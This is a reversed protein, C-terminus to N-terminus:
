RVTVVGRGGDVTVVQGDVLRTTAASVNVVAPLGYERAIVAGHSLMGGMELVLGGALEFLPTWGPDTARAVLIEGRRLRGAEDLTRLVRVPGTVTGASIGTGVLRKRDDEEPVAEDGLLFPPPEDGARRRAVEEDWAARRREALKRAAERGLDGRRLAEVEAAELFRLPLDLLREMALYVRKWRWLIREFHFRQDERLQLYRRTLGVLHRTGPPLGALAERARAADAAARRAPSAPADALARALTRVRAPDEAWRPSFLEWSSTARHGFRALFRAEDLDGRGLAWLAQNTRLTWNEDPSRLLLRAAEALGLRALAAQSLEYGINAFLLSCVHIRVYDRVLARAAAVGAAARGLDAPAPDIAALRRDLAAEFDAWARWNTWPNWRFREWRREAFTEALISRYVRLDPLEARRRLWGREEDPPLLEVMFRPPPAGPLKFALHRFVTVNLYPAFRVLRTPEGGGLHRRATRPYAIFWHLVDRIESWGLPTAPETWREGVFRRTWVVRPARPRPVGATTVPRSQVIFFRRRRDQVWEIDQPGGFAREARLGLRALRLLEPAELKPRARLEAPVPRPRVGDEGLTWSDEQPQVRAELVERALRAAGPLRAAVRRGPRRVRYLDPVVRGEVVAVGLGWGAEVVMEGWSGTAPNITFLVGAARADVLEQVVVAMRAPGPARGRAARYARARRRFASAWCTLVARELADGPAVGLVSDYIGAHSDHRGDEGVASSRVALRHGLSPAAARLEGALAAPLRAERVARAAEEPDLRALGRERAFAEFARAPVVVTRPVPLGAAALRALAAAKGGVEAADGPGIEGLPVLWRHM